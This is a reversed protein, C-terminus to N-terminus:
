ILPSPAFKRGGSDVHFFFNEVRSIAASIEAFPSVANLRDMKADYSAVVPRNDHRLLTWRHM